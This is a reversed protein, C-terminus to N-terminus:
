KLKAPDFPPIVIEAKCTQMLGNQFYKVWIDGSEEGEGSIKFLVNPYSKSFSKMDKECDYWKCSEGFPDYDIHKILEGYVLFIDSGKEQNTIQNSMEISYRTYYGM